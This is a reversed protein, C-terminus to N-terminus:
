AFRQNGAPTEPPFAYDLLRHTPWSALLPLAAMELALYLLPPMVQQPREGPGLVWNINEKPTTLAYSAPLVTWTLATQLLLARRDYGFRRLMWWLTPPLAVHFLSLARLGLPLRADFMYAALGVARGGSAFDVNWAIELPLVGVAAMSAPLPKEIIVSLATSALALDSLWLFNKPGYSRWYVAAIVPTGVAYGLKLAVPVRPQARRPRVTERPLPARAGRRRRLLAATLVAGSALALSGAVLVGADLKLNANGTILM